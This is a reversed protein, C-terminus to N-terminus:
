LKLLKYHQLKQRQNEKVPLIGIAIIRDMDSEYFHEVEFGDTELLNAFLEIDQCYDPLECVIINTKYPNNTFCMADGIVMAVHAVQILQHIPEINNQDVWIYCYKKM